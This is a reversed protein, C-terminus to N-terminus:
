RQVVRWPLGRVANKVAKRLMDSLVQSSAFTQKGESLVQGTSMPLPQGTFNESSWIRVEASLFRRTKWKDLYERERVTVEAFYAPEHEPSVTIYGREFFLLPLLDRVEKELLGWEGPKEAFVSIIQVSKAAEKLDKTAWSSSDSFSVCGISVVAFSFVLFLKVNKMMIDKM